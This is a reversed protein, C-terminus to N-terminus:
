REARAAGLMWPTAIRGMGGKIKRARRIRKTTATVKTMRVRGKKEGSFMKERVEERRWIGTSTSKVRSDAM